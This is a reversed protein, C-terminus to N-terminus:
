DAAKRFSETRREEQEAVDLHCPCHQNDGPHSTDDRSDAVPHVVTHIPVICQEKYFIEAQEQAAQTQQGAVGLEAANAQNDSACGQNHVVELPEDFCDSGPVPRANVHYLNHCTRQHHSAAKNECQFLEILQLVISVSTLRCFLSQFCNGSRGRM